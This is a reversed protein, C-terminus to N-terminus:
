DDTLISVDKTFASNPMLKMMAEMAFKAEHCLNKMEKETKKLILRLEDMVYEGYEFCLFDQMLCSVMRERRQDWERQEEGRM